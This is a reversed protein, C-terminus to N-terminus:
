ALAPVAAGVGAGPGFAGGLHACGTCFVRNATLIRDVAQTASPRQHQDGLLARVGGVADPAACFHGTMATAARCWPGDNRACRPLGHRCRTTQLSADSM